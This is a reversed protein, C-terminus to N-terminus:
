SLNCMFSDIIVMKIIIHDCQKVKLENVTKQLVFKGFLHSIFVSPFEFTLARMLQSLTFNLKIVDM